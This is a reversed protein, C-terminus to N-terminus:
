SPFATAVWAVAADLEVAMAKVREPPLGLATASEAIEVPARPHMAPARRLLDFASVLRVLHVLPGLETDPVPGHHHAAVEALTPPLQWGKHLEVGAEVHVRLLLRGLGPEPIAALKGYSVLEATSRLAAALGVDHLLGAM